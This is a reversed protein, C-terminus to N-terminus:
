AMDEQREDMFVLDVIVLVTELLVWGSVPAPQQAEDVRKISNAIKGSVRPSPLATPSQEEHRTLTCVRSGEDKIDPLVGVM